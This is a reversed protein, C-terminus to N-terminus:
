ASVEEVELPEDMFAAHLRTAYNMARREAAKGTFAKLDIAPTRIGRFFAAARVLWTGDISLTVHIEAEYGNETTVTLKTLPM